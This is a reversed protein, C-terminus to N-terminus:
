ILFGENPMKHRISASDKLVGATTPGCPELGTVEQSLCARGWQAETPGGMVVVVM